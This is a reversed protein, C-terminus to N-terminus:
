GAINICACALAFLLSLLIKMDRFLNSVRGVPNEPLVNPNAISLGFNRVLCITALCFRVIWGSPCRKFLGERIEFEKLNGSNRVVAQLVFGTACARIRKEAVQRARLSRLCAMLLLRGFAHDSRRKPDM